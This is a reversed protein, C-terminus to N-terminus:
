HTFRHNKELVTLVSSGNLVYRAKNYVVFPANFRVGSQVIARIEDRHKEVDIGKVRELFRVVAHDTINIESVDCDITNHLGTLYERISKSLMTLESLLIKIERIHRKIEEETANEIDFYEM